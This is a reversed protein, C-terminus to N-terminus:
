RAIDSPVDPLGDVIVRLEEDSIRLTAEALVRAFAHLAPSFVDRVHVPLVIADRAFRRAIQLLFRSKGIGADGEVLRLAHQRRGGRGLM